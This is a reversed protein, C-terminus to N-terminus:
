DTFQYFVINYGDPDSCRFENAGWWNETIETEARGGSQDQQVLKLMGLLDDVEVYFLNGMGRGVKNTMSRYSEWPETSDLIFHLDFDGLKVVVKDSEIKIIKAGITTYFQETKVVDSIYLVNFSSDQKIM